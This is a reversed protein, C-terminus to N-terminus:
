EGIDRVEEGAFASVSSPLEGLLSRRQRRIRPVSRSPWVIPRRDGFIVMPEEGFQVSRQAAGADRRQM